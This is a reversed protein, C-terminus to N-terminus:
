RDIVNHWNTHSFDVVFRKALADLGRELVRMLHFVTAEDQELAYCNGANRIEDICSRFATSVEPGFLDDKQFYKDKEQAILFCSKRRLESAFAASLTDLHNRLDGSSYEKDTRSVDSEIHLILDTTSTLDLKDCEARMATLSATLDGIAYENAKRRSSYTSGAALDAQYRLKAIRSVVEYFGFAYRNLMDLFSWLRYPASEWPWGAHDDSLGSAVPANPEVQLM